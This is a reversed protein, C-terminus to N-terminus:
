TNNNFHEENLLIPYTVAYNGGGDDHKSIIQPVSHGFM